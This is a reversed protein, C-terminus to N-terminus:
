WVKFKDRTSLSMYKTKHKLKTNLKAKSLKTQTTKNTQKNNPNCVGM